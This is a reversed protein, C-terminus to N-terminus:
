DMDLAGRNLLWPLVVEIHKRYRPNKFMQSHLDVGDTGSGVFNELSADETPDMLVAAMGGKAVAFGSAGNRILSKHIDRLTPPAKSYQLVKLHEVLNDHYVKVYYDFKSLKDELKTSSILFNTLDQAVTGYNPFQFDILYVEEIEGHDDYQFMVNNCWFDGHNLVNFETTKVKSFLDFVRDVLEPQLAKVKEIYAENGKFSPCCKLFKEGMGKSIEKMIPRNNPNFMGMTRAQPYPGKTAVRVVSAAHWQALKKLVRETHAQDLGELRNANKFGKQGLDELVVYDSQANKLDYAKAGFTIDVGVERYMEEMEPVVDNYMFRETDFINSNKIMEKYIDLQHPLKVMYSVEKEKGDKLEVEIKVRLMITAYNDGAGSGMEPKFSRVKVFGDVNKRLVDEFVEASLWEPVKDTM